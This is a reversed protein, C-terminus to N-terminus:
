IILMCDGYSYFRYNKKIAEKYAKFALEKGAFACVLVFLTTKPLHFNTLLCDIVKFKFSPYIFLDTSANISDNCSEIKEGVTELVRTTTTGVAFIRKGKKKTKLIKNLVAKSINFNESHMNHKLIQAQKIPAFTGEGVHLTVFDFDVQREKLIKFIKDDFHLGATPSAIAGPKKAFVTQYRKQDEKEPLRKIYPPLPMLGLHSLQNEIDESLLFEVTNKSGEKDSLKLAIPSNVISLVENIKLRKLPKLLATYKNKRIRQILLVEVKGGSKRQALLRVPRVRTDNLLILDGPELYNVIDTFYKHEISSKKRNVVLMRSASRNKLPYQAILEAPLNYDFDILKM